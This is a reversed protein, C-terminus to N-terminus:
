ESAESPRARVTATTEECEGCFYHSDFGKGIEPRREDDTLTAYIRRTNGCNCCTGAMATTTSIAM